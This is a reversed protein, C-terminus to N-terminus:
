RAVWTRLLVAILAAAALYPWVPALTARRRAEISATVAEVAAASDDRGPGAEFGEETGIFSVGFSAEGLMQFGARNRALARSGPLRGLPAHTRHAAARRDQPVLWDLARSWFIPFAARRSWDTTAEDFGFLVALRRAGGAEWTVMLPTDEAGLLRQASADVAYRGVAALRPPDLYFAEALPHSQVV